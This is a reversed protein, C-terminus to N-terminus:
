VCYFMLRVACEAEFRWFDAEAECREFADRFNARSHHETAEASDWYDLYADALRQAEQAKTTYFQQETM